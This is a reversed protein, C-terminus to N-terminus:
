LGKVMIKIDFRGQYRDKDSYSINDGYVKCEVRLEENRTLNTFHLAVLPQLYQPQLLKGYYPYYQLPFGGGIGYYDIRGIKGADEERKNTCYIPIVNPQAKHQAEEPISENSVPPRPRFNVIRNLKVIVCPQGKDFGFDKDKDELGACPGLLTRSFRCAKRVGADGELDGRNKYEMPEDGCDDFHMKNLQKEDDYKALFDRLAKTYTLYTEVEKPNFFVESKDSRPTHSLGPPAVRDQWTPKYNSLTLLMAQITGIFIGALCGYFIVYFILIKFWSGGTRGLLEGKESDWLFKKWGGDDTKPPM